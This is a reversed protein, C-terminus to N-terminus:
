GSTFPPILRSRRTFTWLVSAENTFTPILALISGVLALTFTAKALGPSHLPRRLGHITVLNLFAIIFFIAFM